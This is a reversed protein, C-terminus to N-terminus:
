RNVAHPIDTYVDSMTGWQYRQLLRSLRPEMKDLNTYHRFRSKLPAKEFRPQEPDIEWPHFYFCYPTDSTSLYKQIAWRSWFEPLLRFYGGGAIPVRKNMLKLTPMPIEFIGEPRLHPSDPWDPTGYLDHNIPVTSSSYSFGAEKLAAFAWESKDTISFSPARYGKIANGTIDELISKAKTIDDSFEQQSQTYIRRHAYGHCAIEHGRNTIEKVLEPLREAVWGLIFFTAKADHREFLDLIRKTNGDVRTDLQDWQSPEIVSEFASVHFFDEVDVTLANLPHTTGQM